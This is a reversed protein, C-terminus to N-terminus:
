NRTAYHDFALKSIKAILAEQTETDEKSNTVFLAIALHKGNPLTIVGVDNVAASIGEPNRGSTGTKHAVTTEAPLLGKIRNKGTNTEVMFKMLLEHTANALIKKEGLLVLLQVMGVPTSWNKFQVDWGKHMQAETHKIAVDKVGLSHVFSEVKEPGGILRFLIDCGSNDSQSVTYSLLEGITLEVNGEPYKKAIPSWTDHLLDSKKVRVKQDVSLKGQDVLNLVALALHFKFVSQMPFHRNGNISLSDGGEIHMLGVGVDGKFDHILSLIDKRLVQQANICHSIVLLFLTPLLFVKM